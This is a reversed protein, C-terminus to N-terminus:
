SFYPKGGLIHYAHVIRDHTRSNCVTFRLKDRQFDPLRVCRYIYEPPAHVAAHVMPLPRTRDYSIDRLQGHMSPVCGAYHGPPLQPPLPLPNPLSDATM